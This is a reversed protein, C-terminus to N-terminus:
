EPIYKQSFVLKEKKLIYPHTELLITELTSPMKREGYACILPFSIENVANDVVREFDGILHFPEDM